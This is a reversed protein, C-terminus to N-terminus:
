LYLTKQTVATSVTSNASHKEDINAVSHNTTTTTTTTSLVRLNNIQESLTEIIKYLNQVQFKWCTHGVLHKRKIRINPDFSTCDCKLQVPAERCWLEHGITMM